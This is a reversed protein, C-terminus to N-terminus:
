KKKTTWSWKGNKYGYFVVMTPTAYGIKRRDDDFTLGEIYARWKQTLQEMGKVSHLDIKTDLSQIFKSM